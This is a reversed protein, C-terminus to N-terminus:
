RPGSGRRSSSSAPVRDVDDDDCVPEVSGGGASSWSAGCASSSAGRPLRRLGVCVVVLGRACDVLGRASVVMLSRGAVVVVVVLSRGFIVVLRFRRPWVARARRRRPRVRLCLILAPLICVNKYRCYM